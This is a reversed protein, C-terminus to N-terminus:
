NANLKISSVSHFVFRLLLSIDVFNMTVFNGQSKM